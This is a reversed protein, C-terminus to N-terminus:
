DFERFTTGVLGFADCTRCYPWREDAEWVATASTVCVWGSTLRWGSVPWGARPVAAEKM